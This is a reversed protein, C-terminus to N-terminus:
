LHPNRKKPPPNSANKAIHGIDEYTPTWDNPHQHSQHDQDTQVFELGVNPRDLEYKQKAGRARTKKINQVRAFYLFFYSFINKELINQRLRKFVNSDQYPQYM